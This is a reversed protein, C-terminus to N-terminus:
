LVKKLDRIALHMDSFVLGLKATEDALALLLAGRGVDIMVAWGHEGRLMVEKITGRGFEHVARDCLNHLTAAMGAVRSEELTEPLAAAIMLGDESVVAAAQLGPCDGLLARLVADLADLKTHVTM